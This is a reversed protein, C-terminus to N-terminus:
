FTDRTVAGSFQFGAVFDITGGDHQAGIELSTCFANVTYRIDGATNGEFGFILSGEDGINFPSDNEARFTVSATGDKIGALYLHNAEAGATKQHMQVSENFQVSAYQGSLDNGDFSIYAGLGITRDTAAM